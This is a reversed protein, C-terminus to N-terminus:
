LVPPEREPVDHEKIAARHSAGRGARHGLLAHARSQAEAPQKALKAPGRRRASRAISARIGRHLSRANEKFEALVAPPVLAAMEAFIVDPEGLSEDESTTPDADEFDDEDDDM